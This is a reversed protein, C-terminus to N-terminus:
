SRKSVKRKPKNSIESNDPDFCFYGGKGLFHKISGCHCYELFIYIDNKEKDYHYDYM